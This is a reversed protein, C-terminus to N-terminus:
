SHGRRRDQEQELHLDSGVPVMPSRSRPRPSAPPAVFALPVPVHGPSSGVVIWQADPTGAPIPPPLDILPVPVPAMEADTDVILPPLSPLLSPLVPDEMRVDPVDESASTTRDVSQPRSSTGTGDTEDLLGSGLSSHAASQGGSSTRSIPELRRAEPILLLTDDLRIRGLFGALSGSFQQVQAELGGLRDGFRAARESERTLVAVKEELATLRAESLSPVM